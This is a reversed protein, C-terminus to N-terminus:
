PPALCVAPRRCRTGRRRGSSATVPQRMPAPAVAPDQHFFPARFFTILRGCVLVAVWACLSIGAILKSRPPASADAPLTKVDAFATTGYFALINAGAVAMLVLKLRFANNYFYQEPHGAGVKERFLHAQIQV